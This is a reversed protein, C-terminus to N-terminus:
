ESQMDRQLTRRWIVGFILLSGSMTLGLLSGTDLVEERAITGFSGVLKAPFTFGAILIVSAVDKRLEDQMACRRALTLRGKATLVECTAAKYDAFLGLAFLAHPSFLFYFPTEHFFMILICIGAAINLLAKLLYWLFKQISYTTMSDPNRYPKQRQTRQSEQDKESSTDTSQFSLTHGSNSAVM